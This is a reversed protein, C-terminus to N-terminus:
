EIEESALVTQDGVVEGWFLNRDTYELEGEQNDCPDRRMYYKDPTFPACVRNTTALRFPDLNGFYFDRMELDGNCFSGGGYSPDAYLWGYPAVYFMAWDHDGIDDPNVACGSQWAAPVGVIRCLTIFLIAQVGCDGRRNLAAAEAINELCFYHRMYSYGVNETIWNYILRARRLPNQEDGVIFAALERLYPTFRIHPEEECLYEDFGDPYGVQAKADDLETYVARNIYSFEVFCDEGPKCPTEFFATRQHEGAIIPTATSAILKIESQSACDIPYPLHVRLTEGRRAAEDTPRLSIRVKFRFARSGNKRMIDANEHRFKSVTKVVEVGELEKLYDGCCNRINREAARQYHRVGGRLIFDAHGRDACVRLADADFHPYKKRVREILEDEPILYDHKMLEAIALELELRRVLAPPLDHRMYRRIADIEGDFDGSFKYYKIEDPLELSLYRYSSYDFHEM